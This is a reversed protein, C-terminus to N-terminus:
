DKQKITNKPLITQEDRVTMRLFGGLYGTWAKSIVALVSQLMGSILLCSYFSRTLIKWCILRSSVHSSIFICSLLDSLTVSELYAFNHMVFQTIVLLNIRIWSARCKCRVTSKPNPISPRCHNEIPYACKSASFHWFLASNIRSLQETSVFITEVEFM